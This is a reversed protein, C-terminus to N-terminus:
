VNFYSDLPKDLDIQNRAEALSPGRALLGALGDVPRPSASKVAAPPRAERTTQAGPNAVPDDDFEFSLTDAAKSFDHSEFGSLSGGIGRYYEYEKTVEEMIRRRDLGTIDDSEIVAAFTKNREIKAEEIKGQVLFTQMRKFPEDITPFSNFDDRTETVEVRFLMYDVDTLPKFEGADNRQMLVGNVQQLRSVDVQDEARFVAFYQDALPQGAGTGTFTQALGVCLSNKGAGLLNQVGTALPAAVTLAASVAPVNLLASFSGLTKLFADMSDHQMVSFLGATLEVTGGRFPLLSTLAHDRSVVRDLNGAEVDKLAFRGAAHPIEVSPLNGYQLKVVSHVMPAFDRFWKTRSALVMSKLWLRFYHQNAKAATGPAAGAHGDFGLAVVALHDRDQNLLNKFWQIGM